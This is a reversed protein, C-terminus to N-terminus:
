EDAKQANLLVILGVLLFPAFILLLIGFMERLSLPEQKHTLMLVHDAKAAHLATMGVLLEVISRHEAFPTSNQTAADLLARLENEDENSFGAVERIAAYPVGGVASGVVASVQDLTGLVLGALRPDLATRVPQKNAPTSARNNVAQANLRHRQAKPCAGDGGFQGRSLNRGTKLEEKGSRRRDTPVSDGVEGITAPEKKCPCGEARRITNTRDM